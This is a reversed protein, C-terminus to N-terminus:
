SACESKGTASMDLPKLGLAARIRLAGIDRHIAFCKRSVCVHECLFFCSREHFIRFSSEIEFNNTQTKGTQRMSRAPSRAM